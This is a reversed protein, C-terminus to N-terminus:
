SNKHTKIFLNKKRGKKAGKANPLGEESSLKTNKQIKKHGEKGYAKHRIQYPIPDITQYFFIM